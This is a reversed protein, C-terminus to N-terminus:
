KCPKARKCAPPYRTVFREREFITIIQYSSSNSEQQWVHKKKIKNSFQHSGLSDATIFIFFFHGGSHNRPQYYLNEGLLEFDPGTPQGSFKDSDVQYPERTQSNWIVDYVANPARIITACKFRQVVIM